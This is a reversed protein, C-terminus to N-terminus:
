GWGKSAADLQNTLWASQSQLQSMATEMAVFQRELEAMKTDVRAQMSDVEKQYGDITDQIINEKEPITGSLSDTLHYLSRDLLEAIGFTM